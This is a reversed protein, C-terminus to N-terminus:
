DLDVGLVDLLGIAYLGKMTQRVDELHQRDIGEKIDLLKGWITHFHELKKYIREADKLFSKGENVPNVLLIETGKDFQESLTYKGSLTSNVKLIDKLVTDTVDGYFALQLSLIGDQNIQINLSPKVGPNYHGEGKDLFEYRQFPVDIGEELGKYRPNEPKCSRGLCFDGLGGILINSTEIGIGSKISRRSEDSLGEISLDQELNKIESIRATDVAMVTRLNGARLIKYVSDM